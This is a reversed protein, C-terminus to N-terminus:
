LWGASLSATYLPKGRLLQPLGMSINTALIISKVAEHQAYRDLQQYVDIKRAKGRMKCEIVVGGPLYFDPIDQACIRKEREYTIGSSEFARAMAEQLHKESSLDLRMRGIMRVVTPADPRPNMENENRLIM